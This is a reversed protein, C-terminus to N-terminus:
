SLSVKQLETSSLYSLIEESSNQSNEPDSQPSKEGVPTKENMKCDHTQIWTYFESKAPAYWDYRNDEACKQNLKDLEAIVKGIDKLPEKDLRQQDIYGCLTGGGDFSQGVFRIQVEM